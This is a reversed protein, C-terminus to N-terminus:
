RAIVEGTDIRLKKLVGSEFPVAYDESVPSGTDIGVDFM